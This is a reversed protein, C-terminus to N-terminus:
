CIVADSQDMCLMESLLEKSEEASHAVIGENAIRCCLDSAASRAVSSSVRLIKAYVDHVVRAAMSMGHM